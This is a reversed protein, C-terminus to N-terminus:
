PKAAASELELFEKEADTGAYRAREGELSARYGERGLRRRLEDATSAPFRSRLDRKARSQIERAFFTAAERDAPAVDKGLFENVIALARSFRGDGLAAAARPRVETWAPPGPPAPVAELDAVIKRLIPEARMGAAEDRRRRADVLLSQAKRHREGADRAARLSAEVEDHFARAEKLAGLERAESAEYGRKEARLEAARGGFDRRESALALPLELKAAAGKWDREGARRRAELVHPEVERAWWEQPTLADPTFLWLAYAGFVAAIALSLWAVPPVRRRSAEAMFKRTAQGPRNDARRTVNM